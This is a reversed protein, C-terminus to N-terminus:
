FYYLCIGVGMFLLASLLLSYIPLAVGSKLVSKRPNQPNYYVTCGGGVKYQAVMTQMYSSFSIAIWDGYYVKKSIYKEGDVIYQYKIKVTYSQGTNDTDWTFGSLESVLIKGNTTNWQKNKKARYVLFLFVFLQIGGGILM